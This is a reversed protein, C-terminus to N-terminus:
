SPRRPRASTSRSSSFAVARRDATAPAFTIGRRRVRGAGLAGNHALQGVAAADFRSQRRSRSLRRTLATWRLRPAGAFKNASRSHFRAPRQAVVRGRASAGGDSRAGDDDACCLPRSASLRQVLCECIRSPTRHPRAITSTTTTTPWSFLRPFCRLGSHARWKVDKKAAFFVVVFFSSDDIRQSLVSRRDIPERNCSLLKWLRAHAGHVRTTADSSM